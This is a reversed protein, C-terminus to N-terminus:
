LKLDMNLDQVPEINVLQKPDVIVESENRGTFIANAKGTNGPVPEDAPVPVTPCEDFLNRVGCLSTM